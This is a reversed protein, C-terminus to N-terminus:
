VLTPRQTCWTVRWACGPLVVWKTGWSGMTWRAQLPLSIEAFFHNLRWDMIKDQSSYDVTILRNRGDHKISHDNVPSALKSLSAWRWYLKHQEPTCIGAQDWLLCLDYSLIPTLFTVQEGKGFSAAFYGVKFKFLNNELSLRLMAGDVGNMSPHSVGKCSECSM